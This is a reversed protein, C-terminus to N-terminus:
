VSPQIRDDNMRFSSMNDNDKCSTKFLIVGGLPGDINPTWKEHFLVYLHPLNEM